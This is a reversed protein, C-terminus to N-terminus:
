PAARFTDLRLIISGSSPVDVCFGVYTNSTSTFTLTGDDTAYVADGVNAITAGSLAHDFDGQTYVRVSKDGDSGGSNDVEEYAVGLFVEGATLPAAYGGAEVSVLLNGVAVLGGLIWATTEIRRNM